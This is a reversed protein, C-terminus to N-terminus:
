TKYPIWRMTQVFVQILYMQQIPSESVVIKLHHNKAFMFSVNNLILIMWLKIQGILYTNFNHEVKYVNSTSPYRSQESLFDVSLKKYTRMAHVYSLGLQCM